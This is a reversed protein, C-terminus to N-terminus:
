TNAPTAPEAVLFEVEIETGFTTGLAREFVATAFEEFNPQELFKHVGVSGYTGNADMHNLIAGSLPYRIRGMWDNEGSGRYNHPTYEVAEDLMKPNHVQIPPKIM